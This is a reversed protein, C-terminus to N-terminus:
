EHVAKKIIDEVTEGLNALEKRDLGATDIPEHITFEITVGKKVYGPEEFMKYSNNITVPVVPVKAKTALKLAGPKFPAMKSSHSRTGEPFIILSFGQKLLEAGENITHLSERANGRTIFLSRIAATWQSFVPIKKLSDKAIFGVQHKTIHLFVLIDAYSQHNAVYVVPGETPLNEPNIIRVDTEFHEVIQATWKQVADYIAKREGERDGRARLSDIKKKYGAYQLFSFGIYGFGPISKLINM